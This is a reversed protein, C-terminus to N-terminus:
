RLAEMRQSSDTRVTKPRGSETALIEASRMSGVWEPHREVDAIVAMVRATSADIDIGASTRDAVFCLTATSRM